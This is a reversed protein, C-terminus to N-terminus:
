ECLGANKKRKSSNLRRELCKHHTQTVEIFIHSQNEFDIDGLYKERFM